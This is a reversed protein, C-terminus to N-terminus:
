TTLLTEIESYRFEFWYKKELIYRSNAKDGGPGGGRVVKFDDQNHQNVFVNIWLSNSQPNSNVHEDVLKLIRLKQENTLKAILGITLFGWYKLSTM